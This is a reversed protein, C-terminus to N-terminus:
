SVRKWDEAILAKDPNGNGILVYLQYMSMSAAQSADKPWWKFKGQSLRKQLLWFGQGDYVLMKIATGNRGRFLFFTGSHPDESLQSRCIGALGDIGKRFDVPPICFFIRTGPAIQIM